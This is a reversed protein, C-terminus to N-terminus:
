AVRAPRPAYGRDVFWTVADRLAEDAPTQPLGLEKIAKLKVPPLDVNVKVERLTCNSAGAADNADLAKLWNQFNKGNVGEKVDPGSGLELSLPGLAHVAAHGARPPAGAM